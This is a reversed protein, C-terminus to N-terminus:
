KRKKNKRGFLSALRSKNGEARQERERPLVNMALPIDGDFAIDFVDGEGIKCEALAEARLLSVVVTKGDDSVLVAFKESEGTEIRDVSWAM